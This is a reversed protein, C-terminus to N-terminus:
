SASARLLGGMRGRHGRHPRRRRRHAPGGGLVAASVPHPDDLLSQLPTAGHLRALELLGPDTRRLGELANTAVPFFIILTAMVVKSALGFGFWVM